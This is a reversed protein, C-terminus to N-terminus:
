IFSVVCVPKQLKTLSFLYYNLVFDTHTTPIHVGSIKNLFLVVNLFCLYELSAKGTKRCALHRLSIDSSVDYLDRLFSEACLFGSGHKRMSPMTGNFKPEGERPAWFLLKLYQFHPYILFFFVFGQPATLYM